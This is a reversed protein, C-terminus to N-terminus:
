FLKFKKVVTWFIILVFTNVGWAMLIIPVAKSFTATALIVGIASAPYLLASFFMIQKTKENM